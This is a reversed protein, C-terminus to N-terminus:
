NDAEVTQADCTPVDKANVWIFKLHDWSDGVQATLQSTKILKVGLFSNDDNWLSVFVTDDSKMHNELNTITLKGASDLTWSVQSDTAGLNGQAMLAATVTIEITAKVGSGDTAAATITAAGPKVGTVKGGTVRAVGTNDSTWRLTKTTATDPEVTATLDISKGVEVTQPGTLTIKSVKVRDDDGRVTETVIVSYVGVGRSEYGSAGDVNPEDSPSVLHYEGAPLDKFTITTKGTGRVAQITKGNVDAVRQNGANLLAIVSYNSGGTSSAQITVTNSNVGVTFDLTNGSTPALVLYLEKGNLRWTGAAASLSFNGDTEQEIEALDAATVKADHSKGTYASSLFQKPTKTVGIVHVVCEATKDGDKTTATITVTGSAKGHVRGNSVTAVDDDTSTWTVAKNTANAPLVTATIIVESDQDVSTETVDLSISDVHTITPAVPTDSGAADPDYGLNENLGCMDCVGNVYHHDIKPTYETITAGDAPCRKLTVGEKTCTPDTTSVTETYSHVHTDESTLVTKKVELAAISADKFKGTGGDYLSSQIMYIGAPQNRVTGTGVLISSGTEDLLTVPNSGGGDTVTIDVPADSDSVLFMIDQGTASGSLKLVNNDGQGPARVVVNDAKGDYTKSFNVTLPVSIPTTPAVSQDVASTDVEDATVIVTKMPGTYAVINAKAAAISQDLKYDGSPIYSLSADTDFNEYKNGSTVKQSKDTVVTAGTDKQCSTLVDQYSKIAGGEVLRPQKCGIFSNYESFIYCSARTNMAYDTQGEYLNNYLHMNAQRGLPGRAKCGVWHNHHWTIHFQLSDNSSGVLNTKHCDEFYCYSMTFYQGRKFDCAGDGEAKDSEKGAYKINKPGYFACNHVWGREVPATLTTGEQQGEMGICDEPVNRFTVNRVEFSTGRATGMDSTSRMFHFGWGDIVADTGIGEITINHANQMRAMNGNDGASGGYDLSDWATLGEISPTVEESRVRGVIRVVLPIDADALKKLIGQNTNAKGGKSNTGSGSGSEMGTSNLINGIGTVTTGDPATVSVTNKTQETVYLVIANEKLIGDDRYAGVGDTYQYHAYGSRDYEMVQIGTASYAMGNNLTVLLSYKGAPIGPIDIRVGSSGNALTADRVLFELDDDVLSGNIPGNYVVSAVQDDTVGDIEAYLAEFWGGTAMGESDMVADCRRCQGNEDFDHGLAPFEVYNQKEQCRSCLQHDSWGISTCTAAKTKVETWNHGLQESPVTETVDCNEVDCQLTKVGPNTCTATNRLEITFNHQEHPAALPSKHCVDCEGNGDSDKHLGTAPIEQCGDLVADCESCVHGAEQGPDVCTPEVKPSEVSTHGKPQTTWTEKEGCRECTHSQTGPDTCTATDPTEPGWTHTECPPVAPKFELKLAYIKTGDKNLSYTHDKLVDVSWVCPNASMKPKTSTEKGEKPADYFKFSKVESPHAMTVEFTGDSPATFTINKTTLEVGHTYQAYEGTLNIKVSSLEVVSGSITYFSSDASQTETFNLVYGDSALVAKAPGIEPREAGGVNGPMPGLDAPVEEVAADEGMIPVAALSPAALSLALVLCLVLSLFKTVPHKM